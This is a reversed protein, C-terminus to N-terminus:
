EVELTQLIADIQKQQKKIKEYLQQTARWNLGIANYTDIADGTEALLRPDLKYGDGIIFGVRQSANRKVSDNKYNFYYVDTNEVASLANACAIISEKKEAVSTVAVGSPLIVSSFGAGLVMVNYNASYLALASKFYLNYGGNDSPVEYGISNMFGTAAKISGNAWWINGSALDIRMGGGCAYASSSVVYNNSRIEGGFITKGSITNGTINEAAVSGAVINMANINAATFQNADLKNGVSLNTVRLDDITAYKSVFENANVLGKLDIKEARITVTEATQNITSIVEGKEVKTEIGEATAKISVSLKSEADKARTVEATIADANITIGSALKEEEGRARTVEARIQDSQLMLESKMDTISDAVSQATGYLAINTLYLSNIRDEYGIPATFTTIFRVRSTRALIFQFEEKTWVDTVPWADGLFKSYIPEDYSTTLDYLEVYANIYVGMHRLWEYSFKYTGSPISVDQYFAYGGNYICQKDCMTTVVTEDEKEFFSLDIHGNMGGQFTNIEENYVSTRSTVEFRLEEATQIIRSNLGKELDTIELRTEEITRTLKNTKGKLQIIQERIGNVKETQYQEGEADYTDRLAQIGKLTRQLIYSTIVGNKTRLEIADGVERCPNGKAEVHVPQYTVTSIIPYLNEAVTRLEDTSKGYVLFNDQIIYCNDADSHPTDPYINGIDNEGNRIQLKNILATTYDEYEAKIYCNAPIDNSAPYLDEAPYLTDSPYLGDDQLFVYKFKGDRGIHGFCGNIECIATIVTKGSLSTPEITKTVIMSDNVLEVDEQEIGFYALFSDRFAKLTVTSDAAPLITNYWGSVEAHLIDYMADYATIDRYRRDATPKDSYVKYEGFSFPVDTNGDLTETVTLWKDKLSTTINSIRFKIGSAECSGFRLVEGSCISESLEFNESHLDTNTITGTDFNIKLQKDKRDRLYLDAYKYEVM